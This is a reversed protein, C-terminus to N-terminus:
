NVLEIRLGVGRVERGGVWSVKTIIETENLIASKVKPAIERKLYGIQSGTTTLVRIADPDHPNDPELGLKVLDGEEIYESIIQQRSSGDVNEKSVGAVKTDIVEM